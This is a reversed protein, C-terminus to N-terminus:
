VRPTHVWEEFFERQQSVYAPIVDSGSSFIDVLDARTVHCGMKMRYAKLGLGMDRGMASPYVNLSSGYCLPILKERELELRINCLAEFFDLACSESTKGRYNFKLCCDDGREEVILTGSEGEEGGIIFIKFEEM